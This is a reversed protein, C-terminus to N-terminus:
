TPGSIRWFGIRAAGRLDPWARGEGFHDDYNPVTWGPGYAGMVAAYIVEDDPQVEIATTVWAACRVPAPSEDDLLTRAFMSGETTDDFSETAYGLLLHLGDFAGAWRTAGRAAASRGPAPRLRGVM